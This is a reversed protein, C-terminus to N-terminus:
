GCVEPAVYTVLLWIVVAAVAIVAVASVVFRVVDRDRDNM